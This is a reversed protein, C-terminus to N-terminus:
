VASATSHTVEIAEAAHLAPATIRLQMATSSTTSLSPLAEPSTILQVGTSIAPSWTSGSVTDADDIM